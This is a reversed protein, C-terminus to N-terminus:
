HYWLKYESVCQKCAMSSSMVYIPRYVKCLQHLIIQTIMVADHIMQLTYLDNLQPTLLKLLNKIYDDTWLRTFTRLIEKWKKPEWTM